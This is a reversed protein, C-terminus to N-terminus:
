RKLKVFRDVALLETGNMFCCDLDNAKVWDFGLEM